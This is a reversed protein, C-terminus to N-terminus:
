GVPACSLSVRVSGCVGSFALTNAFEDDEWWWWRVVSGVGMRSASQWPMSLKFVLSAMALHHPNTLLDDDCVCGSRM